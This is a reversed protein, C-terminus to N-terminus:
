HKQSHFTLPHARTARVDYLWNLFWNRKSVPRLLFYLIQIEICMIVEQWANMYMGAMIISTKRQKTKNRIDKTCNTAYLSFVFLGIQKISPYFRICVHLLLLLLEASLDISKLVILHTLKLISRSLSFIRNFIITLLTVSASFSPEFFLRMTMKNKAENELHVRRKKLSINM